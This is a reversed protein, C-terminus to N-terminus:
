RRPGNPLSRSGISGSRPVKSHADPFAVRRWCRGRNRATRLVTSRNMGPSVASSPNAAASRRAMSPSGAVNVNSPSFTSSRECAVAAAPSYRFSRSLISARPMSASTDTFSVWSPNSRSGSAVMTCISRSASREASIPRVTHISMSDDVYTSPVISSYAVSRVREGLVPNHM